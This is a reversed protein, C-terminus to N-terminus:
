VALARDESYEKEEEQWVIAACTPCYAVPKRLKDTYHRVDWTGKPDATSEDEVGNATDADPPSDFQAPHTAHCKDCDLEFWIKKCERIPM